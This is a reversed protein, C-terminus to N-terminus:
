GNTNGGNIVKIELVTKTSEDIKCAGSIRYGPVWLVGEKDALVFMTKRLTLPVKEDTFFKNLMKKCLRDKQEIYIFDGDRKRRFIVAQIRDYDLWKTYKERPVTYASDWPFVRLKVEGLGPVSAVTEEGESINVVIEKQEDEKTEERGISVNDYSRCAVLNYPLSVKGTGHLDEMLFLVQEVHSYSIDKRSKVLREFCMLIVNERIVQPEELLEKADFEVKDVSTKVIRDFAKESVSRIFEDAKEFSIAARSLHEISKQNVKEQLLPLVENRIINRLHINEFNTRDTCFSIEREKLYEEIEARSVCLLPRIINDRIARIASGGHLGTGRLLNMLLTEAVDNQHHAVAIVSAKESAAYELFAEYRAARGAEEETLSLDKAMKPVDIHVVKLPIDRKECFSKCFEEDQSAEARICHNLHLAFIRIKLIDKLEFLVTLLATSDAGGSFGVVVSDSPSIMKNKQIYNLVKKSFADM